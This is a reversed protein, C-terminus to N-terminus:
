ASSGVTAVGTFSTVTGGAATSPHQVVLGFTTPTSAGAALTGWVTTKDFNDWLNGTLQVWFVETETASFRAGVAGGNYDWTYSVLPLSSANTVGLGTILCGEAPSFNDLIVTLDGNTEIVATCTKEAPVAVKLTDDIVGQGPGDYVIEFTSPTGNWDLGVTASTASGLLNARAIIVAIAIMSGVLVFALVLLTVKSRKSMRRWWSPQAAHRGISM